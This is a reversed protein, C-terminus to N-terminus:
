PTTTQQTLHVSIQCPSSGALRINNLDVATLRVEYSGPVYGTSDWSALHGLRTSRNLREVPMWLETGDARLDIQYRRADPYAATGVMEIDDGALFAQGTLPTIIRLQPDPCTLANSYSLATQALSLVTTELLNVRRTLPLVAGFILFFSLLLAAASAALSLERGSFRPRTNRALVVQSAEQGHIAAEYPRDWVASAVAHWPVQSEPQREPLEYFGPLSALKGGVWGFFAAEQRIPDVVLGVHWPLTFAASHVIVDDSSYFVGLDPHTHFWGIIDLNAYHTARDQQLKPWSDAAFTFHVPGHDANLAPLAAKVEVVVGSNYRYAHGLLAGGLECDLNSRSHAEVQLVALQHMLVIPEGNVPTEGHMLWAELPAPIDRFPLGALADLHSDNQNGTPETPANNGGVKESSTSASTM